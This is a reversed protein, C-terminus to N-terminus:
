AVPPPTGRLRTSASRSASCRVWYERGSARADERGRDTRTGTPVSTDYSDRPIPRDAVMIAPEEGRGAAVVARVAEEESISSPRRAWDSRPRRYVWSRPWRDRGKCSSSCGRGRWSDEERHECRHRARRGSIVFVVAREGDMELLADGGAARDDCLRAHARAAADRGATDDSALSREVRRLAALLYRSAGPRRWQRLRLGAVRASRPPATRRQPRSPPRPTASSTPPNKPPPSAGRPGACRRDRLPPLLGAPPPSFDRCSRREIDFNGPPPGHGKPTPLPSTSRARPPRPTCRHQDVRTRGTTPERRPRWRRACPPPGPAHIAEGPAASSAPSFLRPRSSSTSTARRARPIDRSAGFSTVRRM